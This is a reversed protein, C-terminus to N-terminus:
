LGGLASHAGGAKQVEGSAVRRVRGGTEERGAQVELDGCCSRSKDKESNGPHPLTKLRTRLSFSRGMKGTDTLTQGWEM